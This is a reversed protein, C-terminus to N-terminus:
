SSKRSSLSGVIFNTFDSSLFLAFIFMQRQLNGEWESLVVKKRDRTQSHRLNEKKNRLKFSKGIVNSKRLCINQKNQTKETCGSFGFRNERRSERKGEGDVSVNCNTEIELM